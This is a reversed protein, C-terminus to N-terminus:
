FYVHVSLAPQWGKLSISGAGYKASDWPAAVDSGLLYKADLGIGFSASTRWEIGFNLHPIIKTKDSEGGLTESVSPSWVTSYYYHGEEKWKIQVISIGFGATLHIGNPIKYKYYLTLPIQWLCVESDNSRSQNFSGSWYYDNGGMYANVTRNIGIKFGLADMEAEYESLFEVGGMILVKESDDYGLGTSAPTLSAGALVGIAKTAYSQSACLILGLLLVWKKM